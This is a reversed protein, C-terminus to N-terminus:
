QQQIEQQFRQQCSQQAAQDPGAQELCERLQKGEESGLLSGVTAAIAGAILISVVGLVIGAIGMGRSSPAAAGRKAKSLAVAGLVVAILGLLGGVVLWSTLLGLVGLVLAAIGLGNGGSSRHPPAGYEGPQGQWGSQSYGAQSGAGYGLPAGGPAPGYGSEGSTTPQDGYGSTSRGADGEDRPRPSFPDQPTSM